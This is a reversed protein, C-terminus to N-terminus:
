GLKWAGSERDGRKSLAVYQHNDGRVAVVSVTFITGFLGVLFFLKNLYADIWRDKIIGFEFDVVPQKKPNKYKSSRFSNLKMRKLRKEKEQKYITLQVLFIIIIYDM